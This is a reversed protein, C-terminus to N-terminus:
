RRRKTKDDEQKITKLERERGRGGIAGEKGGFFFNKKKQEERIKKKRRKNEGLEEEKEGM